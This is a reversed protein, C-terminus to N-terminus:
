SMNMKKKYDLYLWYTLLTLIVVMFLPILWLHDGNIYLGLLMVVVSIVPAIIYYAKAHYFWGYPFFHAGTIMSFFLIADAPSKIIGWFLIPFYIIQAMNLYFGLNGLPNNELKWDAKILTSISVSLPFM